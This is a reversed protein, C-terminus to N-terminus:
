KYTIQQVSIRLTCALMAAEGPSFIVTKNVLRLFQALRQAATPLYVAM